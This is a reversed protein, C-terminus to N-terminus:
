LAFRGLWTPDAGSLIGNVAFIIFIAVSENMNALSRTARFWFNKHDAPVPAGPIHANKMGAIDAVLLQLLLLAGVAGISIGTLHYAQIAEM